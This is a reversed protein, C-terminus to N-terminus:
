KKAKRSMQNCLYKSFRDQDFRGLNRYFPRLLNIARVIDPHPKKIAMAKRRLARTASVVLKHAEYEARDKPTFEFGNAEVETPKRQIKEDDSIEYCSGPWVRKVGTYCFENGEEDRFLQKINGIMDVREGCYIVKIM